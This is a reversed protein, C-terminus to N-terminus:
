EDPYFAAAIAPGILIAELSMPRGNGPDRVFAKCSLGIDMQPALKEAFWRPIHGLQYGNRYWVEIAEKHFLNDTNRVLTLPEGITPMVRGGLGDDKGYDYLQLGAIAAWDWLRWNGLGLTGLGLRQCESGLPTGAFRSWRLQYEEDLANRDLMDTSRFQTQRM